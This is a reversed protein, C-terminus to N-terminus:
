IILQLNYPRVQTDARIAVVRPAAYEPLCM